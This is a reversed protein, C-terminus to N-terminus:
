RSAHLRRWQSWQRDHAAALQRARALSQSRRRSLVGRKVAVLLLLSSLLSLLLQLPGTGLIYSFGFYLLFLFLVGLSGAKGAPTHAHAARARVRSSARQSTVGRFSDRALSHSVWPALQVM